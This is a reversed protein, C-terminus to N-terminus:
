KQLEERIAEVQGAKPSLQHIKECRSPDQKCTEPYGGFLTLMSLLAVGILVGGEFM